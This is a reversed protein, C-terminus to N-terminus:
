LQLDAEKLPTDAIVDCSLISGIVWNLSSPPLGSGPRKIAVDQAGITEGRKMDRLAVVSKRAVLATQAESDRTHKEPNGFAAEVHRIMSVLTKLDKAELSARHDPGEMAHDLTIHKEIICAGLAVAMVPIEFGITHDSYGVPCGFTKRLTEMALMDVDDYATPYNSTCHLLSVPAKSVERVWGLAEAVEELEAMGTSLILPKNTRAVCEILPKNTLDGSGIKYRSVELNELVAVSDHDFPTSLFEIQRKACHAKLCAFDDISLELKKLMAYQSEANHTNKVQYAAKEARKTVLKETSYTQFKAADCGADAAADILKKALEVDGNHNVGIEAIIYVADTNKHGDIM